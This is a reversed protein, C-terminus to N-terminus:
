SFLRRAAIQDREHDIAQTLEDWTEEDYGSEDMLWEDLLQMVVQIQQPAMPELDQYPSIQEPQYNPQITM